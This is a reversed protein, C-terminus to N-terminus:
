RQFTWKKDLQNLQISNFNIWNVDVNLIQNLNLYWM